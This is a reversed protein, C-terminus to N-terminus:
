KQLQDLIEAKLSLAKKDTIRKSLCENVLSLAEKSKGMGQLARAKGLLSTSRNSLKLATDFCSIAEKYKRQGLLFYGKKNYSAEDKPAKEILKNYYELAKAPQGARAYAAALEALNNRDAELQVAKVYCDLGEKNSQADLLRRGKRQLLEADNQNHQLGQELCAQAQETLGLRQLATEKVLFVKAEPKIELAKDYYGIATQYEKKWAYYNGITYFADTKGAFRKIYEDCFAALGAKDGAEDLITIITLYSDHGEPQLAILRRYSAVAEPYNKANWYALSICELDNYGGPEQQQLLSFCSIAELPNNVNEDLSLLLLNAKGRLAETNNPQLKLAQNYAAIGGLADSDLTSYTNGKAIYAECYDPKLKIAKNFYARRNEGRSCVGRYYYAEASTDDALIALDFYDLAEAQKNEKYLSIGKQLYDQASQKVTGALPANDPAAMAPAAYLPAAVAAALLAAALIKKLYM